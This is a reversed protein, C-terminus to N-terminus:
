APRMSSPSSRPSCRRSKGDILLTLTHRVGEHALDEIPKMATLVVLMLLTALFAALYLGCGAALGIAAVAWVSAATTLGFVTEDHRLITGAWSGSGM